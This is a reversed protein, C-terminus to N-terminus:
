EPSGTGVFGIMRAVPATDDDPEVFYQGYQTMGDAMKFEVTVRAAGHHADRKIVTATAGPAAQAFMAVYDSLAGPGEIPEPTRPDAYSVTSTTASTIAALREADDTMSWSAFFAEISVM